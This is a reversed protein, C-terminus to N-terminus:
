RVSQMIAEITSSDEPPEASQIRVVSGLRSVDKGCGEHRGKAMAKLAERM